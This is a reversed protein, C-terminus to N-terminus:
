ETKISASGMVESTVAFRGEKYLVLGGVRGPLTDSFRLEPLFWCDEPLEWSLKPQRVPADISATRVDSFIVPTGEPHRVNDGIFGVLRVSEDTAFRSHIQWAKVTPGEEKFTLTRWVKRYYKAQANSASTYKAYQPDFDDAEVDTVRARARSPSIVDIVVKGGLSELEAIFSTPQTIGLAAFQDIFAFGKALHSLAASDRSVLREVQKRQYLAEIDNEGVLEDIYFELADIDRLEDIASGLEAMLSADGGPLDPHYRKSLTRYNAEALKLVDGPTGFTQEHVLVRKPVGLTILPNESGMYIVKRM